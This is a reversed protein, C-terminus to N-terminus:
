EARRTLAAGLLFGVVLAGIAIQVPYQRVMVSTSPVHVKNLMTSAGEVVSDYAYKATDMLSEEGGASSKSADKAQWKGNNKPTNLPALNHGTSTTTTDEKM